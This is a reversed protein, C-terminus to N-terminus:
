KQLIIVDLEFLQKEIEALSEDGYSILIKDNEKIVYDRIDSVQDHNIFFKLSYEENTCFQIGDVFIYCEYTVQLKLSNFLHELNVGSSHRHITNGNQGEFHIWSSKIQYSLGSFDFEDTFIKVLIGAHEHEDGLIGAGEPAGPTQTGMSVFNYASIGVIVGVVSFVAVAVLLNKRKEKVRKAAFSGRKEEREKRTKKGM